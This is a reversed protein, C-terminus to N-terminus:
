NQDHFFECVLKETIQWAQSYEYEVMKQENFNKDKWTTEVIKLSLPM